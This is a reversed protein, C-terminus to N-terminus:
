REGCCDNIAGCSTFSQPASSASDRGQASIDRGPNTGPDAGIDKGAFDGAAEGRQWDEVLAAGGACRCAVLCFRSVDIVM